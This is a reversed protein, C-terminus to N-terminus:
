QVLRSARVGGHGSGVGHLPRLVKKPLWPPRMILMPVDTPSMMDTRLM